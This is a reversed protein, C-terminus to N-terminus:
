AASRPRAFGPRRFAHQLVFDCLGATAAGCWRRRQHRSRRVSPPAPARPLPIRTTIRSFASRSSSAPAPRCSDGLALRMRTSSPSLGLSPARATVSSAMLMMLAGAAALDGAQREALGGGKAGARRVPHHMAGVQLRRQLGMDVVIGVDLQPEPALSSTTVWALPSVTPWRLPVVRWCSGASASIPASPHPQRAADSNGFHLRLERSQDGPAAGNLGRLQRAFIGGLPAAISRNRVRM